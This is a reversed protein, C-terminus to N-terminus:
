MELALSAGAELALLDEHGRGLVLWGPDGNNTIHGGLRAVALMADRATVLPLARTHEHVALIKIQLATLVDSARAEPSTRAVNRLALLRVAVPLMVAFANVLAAGTELQLKQLQCGTKLAKFLEEILWRRRYVDIVFAIEKATTTPLTTLLTWEVASQGAPPTPEWVHVVNLDFEPGDKARVAWSRKVRITTAGAALTAMRKVRKPHAKDRTTLRKSVVVERELRVRVDSTADELRRGDALKRELHSGRIVFEAGLDVLRAELKYFDAERDMVHIVRARTRTMAEVREAVAIWRDSEKAERTRHAYTARKKRGPVEDPRAWTHAGLIGLPRGDDVTAALCVHAHFGRRRESLRGLGQRSEGAFECETTDQIALAFGAEEARVCTAAIHPALIRQPTVSQNSMFRYTAELAAASVLTKPLSEGPRRSLAAMILGLRRSLRADGLDATAMETALHEFATVM